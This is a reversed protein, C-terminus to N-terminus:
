RRRLQDLAQQYDARLTAIEDAVSNLTTIGGVGQGAGWIDRWAKAKSSGGSGYRMASKDGEPLAEEYLEAILNEYLIVVDAASPPLHTTEDM